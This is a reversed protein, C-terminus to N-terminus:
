IPCYCGVRNRLRYLERFEHVTELKAKEYFSAGFGHNPSPVHAGKTDIRLTPMPAQEPHSESEGQRCSVLFVLQSAGPALSVGM